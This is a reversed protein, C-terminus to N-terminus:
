VVAINKRDSNLQDNFTWHIDIQHNEDIEIYDVFAEVMERTLHEMDSYGFLGKRNGASENLSQIQKEIEKKKREHDAKIEQILVTIESCKERFQEKNLNGVHYEELCAAKQETLEQLKKELVVLHREQEKVRETRIVKEEQWVAEVDTLFILQRRIENLVIKELTENSFSESM